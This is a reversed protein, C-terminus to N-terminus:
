IQERGLARTLRYLADYEYEGGATTVAGSFYNAQQADDSQSVVNAVPDYVYRLDQLLAGDTRTTAVRSLRFTEPEYEYTRAVHNGYQIALRQGKENYTIADVFSTMVDGRLAARAGTLRGGEDYVLAIETAPIAPTDPSYMRIPRKLADY